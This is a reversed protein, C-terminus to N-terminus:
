GTVTALTEDIGSKSALFSRIMDQHIYKNTNLTYNKRSISEGKVLIVCIDISAVESVRQARM